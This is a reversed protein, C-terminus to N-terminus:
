TMQELPTPMAIGYGQAFDVGIDRLLNGIDDNEVFEAITKKGMVHGIDNISRVMASDIPDSLIDKVFSGDIKLYDVPLNKLYDFSAMGTGFDDLAFMCGQKRLEKILNEAVKMNAVAMTETVEFCVKQPAVNYQKLQEQIYGLLLPDGLSNGSLNISCLSLDNLHGPNDGLWKLTNKVVWRDIRSIMNYREAATLFVFPPVLNGQEDKLRLLIEYHKGHEVGENLPAITQYYLLFESNDLAKNLRAVWQMEGHCNAIDEDDSRYLHAGGRGTDKAMFCATDAKSMLIYVDESESDIVVVGISLTINFNMDNWIFGNNEVASKIGEAVVMAKEADVDTLLVGFEDGGLRAVCDGDNVYQKITQSIEQLLLDGAIHGCTDNIVKFLDVDLYLLAGSSENQSIEVVAMKLRKEFEKRNVLGTLDDHAAQYSIQRALQKHGTRERFLMIVRVIEDNTGAIPKASAEIAIENGRRNILNYDAYGTALGKQLVKQVPDKDKSKELRTVCNIIDHSPSGEIEEINWGLIKEAKLNMYRIIGKNDTILVGDNVGKLAQVAIIESQAAEEEYRKIETIDFFVGGIVSRNDYKFFSVKSQLFRKEGKIQVSFTSEFEGEEKEQMDVIESQFRKRDDSTFIDLFKDLSYQQNKELGLSEKLKGSFLFRASNVDFIWISEEIFNDTLFRFSSDEFGNEIKERLVRNVEQLDEIISSQQSCNSVISSVNRKFEYLYSFRSVSIMLFTLLFCTFFVMLFVLLYTYEPISAGVLWIVSFTVLSSFGGVFVSFLLKRITAATVSYSSFSNM